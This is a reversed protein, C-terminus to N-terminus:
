KAVDPVAIGAEEYYKLAGPHLKGTLNALMDPSVAKWWAASDAMAAKQEWFTKTLAYATDDDMATTTYAVVPLSTTVTDTDV